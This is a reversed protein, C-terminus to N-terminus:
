TVTRYLNSRTDRSCLVFLVVVTSSRDVTIHFLHGDGCASCSALRCKVYTKMRNLSRARKGVFNAKFFLLM